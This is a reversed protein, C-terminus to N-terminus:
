EFAFAASLVLAWSKEVAKKRNPPASVSARGPQVNTGRGVIPADVEESTIIHDARTM